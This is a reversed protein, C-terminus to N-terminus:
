CRVGTRGVGGQSESGLVEGFAEMEGNTFRNAVHKELTRTFLFEKLVPNLM